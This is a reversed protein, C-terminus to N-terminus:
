DNKKRRKREKKRKREEGIQMASHTKEYMNKERQKAKRPAWATQM